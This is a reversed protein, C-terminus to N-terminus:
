PTNGAPKEPLDSLMKDFLRPPLAMLLWVICYMLFPFAIRPKNKELGRKIIQAAKGADMMMPMYFGNADTMPTKIYGPCVVNVAIKEKMFLGRWSEGLSKVAAKSACYAPAGPFGRFAALSSIIAIQGKFKNKEEPAKRRKFIDLAPYVTNLVGDVNTMFIARAQEEPEGGGGTGASIGANAIVLDLPTQNQAYGIWSSMSIKDMVDVTSPHADAGKAKCQDAVANLRDKDRGGLFLTVGPEAYALALAAGIGSSAGTILISKPKIM